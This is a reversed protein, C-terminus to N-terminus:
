VLDESSLYDLIAAAARVAAGDQLDGLSAEVMEKQKAEYLHHRAPAAKIAAMLGAPDDVVDGLHWHAFNPDDRWESGHANLFVCPRPKALFEYIQSSGDGVYIDAAAIYTCDLSRDSGTDIMVNDTSRVEIKDRFRRSRRRFLKVHPAVILNMKKERAFSELMPELFVHWSTLEPAHHANYLVTTQEVRFLEVDKELKAGTELKVSGTLAYHGTRILGAQLMRAETKRGALLVFDFTAIRPIFGYARDGFGHPTYILKPRLIKLRRASAVTNEVSLIADFRNLVKRNDRLVLDKFLGLRKFSQLFRTLPSRRLPTYLVVPARISRRVRELHRPTDPDHFYISLRVDPHSALEFAISAGHYCQYSEAICLFAIDIKKSKNGM